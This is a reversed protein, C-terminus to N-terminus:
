GSDPFHHATITHPDTSGDASCPNLHITAGALRPLEHLLRHEAEEAVAHAESLTLAADAGIDAEALLEHGVWRVRVRDVRSVRPVAALADRASDVLDPDVSDMLRRYIDRAANKLVMLVAVTIVLGVVPDAQKWGAAVGAAGAVVALSTFGDTRAHMGDAVLAASGIRRGVRIRYRAVLENGAFGVFGAAVVWGVGQMSRPHQLRLVAEWAALVSSGAIVAVIFIGALDEARGYGYTYRENPPRRGIWFAIGLPVATLADAFNHITDSLLAVSSSVIVVALQIAATVALGALSVKLARMGEDTSGLAAAISDGADHSHPVFISKVFGVPGGRHTHDHADGHDHHHEHAM